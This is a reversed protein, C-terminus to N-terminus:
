ATTKRTSVFTELRCFLNTKWASVLPKTNDLSPVPLLPLLFCMNEELFQRKGQSFTLKLARFLGKKSVNTQFQFSLVFETPVLKFREFVFRKEVLKNTQKQSFTQKLFTQKLYPFLSNQLVNTKPQFLLSGSQWASVNKVSVSLKKNRVFRKTQYFKRKSVNTQFCHFWGKPSGRMEAEGHQPLQKMNVMM